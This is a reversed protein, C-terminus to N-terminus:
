YWHPSRGLWTAYANEWSGYREAVYSNMWRLQCVPDSLSCGMKACPLAQPIGCAGSDPNIANPRCGSEGGILAVVANTATIGAQAIWDGCSGSAPVTVPAPAPAPAPAPPEPAPVSEAQAETKVEAVPPRVSEQAVVTKSAAANSLNKIHSSPTPIIVIALVAAM